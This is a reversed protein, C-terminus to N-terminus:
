KEWESKIWKESKELHNLVEIIKPITFTEDDEFKTIVNKALEFDSQHDVVIRYESLDTSNEINDLTFLDSHKIIYETVHEKDFSEKANKWTRELTDFSFVEVATGIPFGNHDEKWLGDKKQIINSVYDVKSELFKEICRDIVEPDVFPSDASIRVIPEISYKKACQYYRDLVNNEDGRFVEVNISKVYKEIIDDKELTSTAVIIKSDFKSKRIQNIVYYLIPKNKIKMMVKGPLRHSGMRAQIIILVM